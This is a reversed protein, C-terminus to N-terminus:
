TENSRALLKKKSALDACLVSPCIIFMRINILNKHKKKAYALGLLTFGSRPSLVGELVLL